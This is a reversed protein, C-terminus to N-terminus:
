AEWVAAATRDDAYGKVRTQADALFAALGPPTPGRWRDALHRCLGPEGRLPDALGQTCLLLTDGPRAISARFRFPARPPEAPGGDEGPRASPAYPSPPAPIGLDGPLLAGEAPEAPVPGHGTAPDHGTAPGDAGEAARPEIDEWEGGRLRFLGGAGAGFFVRTRCAPDVPLLLCRLTAAYEAAPLGQEVATARLRGLVRDTLRQLGSKLDGRRAGRIDEALRAHNRGVAGAILRCVETAARHAAPTTRAGTAMAVLLLGQAGAGFRATLLADRRPEGRYRASDGRLSVARLTCAGYRAGDLVTDPVLEDLRDADASPLATPEADYTPPRSGVHRVAPPAPAPPVGAPAPPPQAGPVGPAAGRTPQSPSTPSSGPAAPGSSPWSPESPPTPSLWSPEGPPASPPLPAEDPPATPSFPPEGPSASPPVPPGGPSASPPVPPGGLPAAPPVPPGGPPASPRVPSGGPPVSPRVPSGGPSVSPRVSSGGPSVSPRVPSGGPPVSPRVSPPVAPIEPVGPRSQPPVVTGPPTAPPEAVAPDEARAPRDDAPGGRSPVHGTAPSTWPAGSVPDALSDTRQAPAGAAPDRRNGLGTGAPAAPAVGTGTGTPAARDTPAPGAQGAPPTAPPPPQTPPPPTGSPQRPAPATPAPGGFPPRVGTEERTRARPPRDRSAPAEPGPGGVPDPRERRPLNVSAPSAVPASDGPGRRWWDPGVGPPGADEGPDPGADPPGAGEGADPSGSGEGPDPREADTGTGDPSRRQPPTGGLTDTASAFRDDLSDAAATPGTDETSDDYLQGWWDDARGTPRGGQQSM